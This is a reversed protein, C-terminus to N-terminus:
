EPKIGATKVLNGWKTQESRIFEMLENGTKIDFEVGSFAVHETVDKSTLIKEFEAQLRKVVPPPTGAPLFFGGWTYAHANELGVEDAAPVNPLLRLRRPGMVVIPRLKGAEIM